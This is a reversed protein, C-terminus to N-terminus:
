QTAEEKIEPWFFGVGLMAGKFEAMLAPHRAILAAKLQEPEQCLEADTADPWVASHRAYDLERAKGESYGTVIEVFEVKCNNLGAIFEDAATKHRFPCEHWREGFGLVTYHTGYTKPDKEHPFEARIFQGTGQREKLFKWFKGAIEHTVPSDGFRVGYEWANPEGKRKGYHDRDGAHYVTNAIYHMPEDTSTLHWKILHAWTPFERAIDDHCCGGSHERWAGREYIRIDATIAFSEHGNKCEDDFRLEPTIRYKSGNETFEKSAKITQNLIRGNDQAIVNFARASVGYVMLQREAHLIGNM